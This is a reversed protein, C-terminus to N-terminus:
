SGTEISSLEPRFPLLVRFGRVRIEYRPVWIFRYASRARGASNVFGGGRVVRLGGSPPGWPNRKPRPSYSSYWDAAWEWANGHMDYLGWPNPEKQKGPYLRLGSNERYFAVADLTTPQGHRDCYEAECGARAAYEWEAETPLRGGLWAAYAYATYWSVDVAPLEDPAEPDHEPLLRRLEQNTVEHRLLRFGDLTVRHRPQERSFGVGDPSGMEFSGAPVEVWDEDEPPPPPRAERLPALIEDRLAQAGEEFGAVRVPFYDLAWVISAAMRLDEPAERLLPLAAEAARLIATPRRDELVGGGGKEFMAAVGRSSKKRLEATLQPAEVQFDEALEYIASLAAGADQLALESLLQARLAGQELRVQIALFAVVLVALVAVAAAGMALRTRPDRRLRRRVWSPGFVTAYVKNRPRLRERPPGSVLGVLRLKTQEEAADDRLPGRGRLIRQYVPLWRYAAPDERVQRRVEVLTSDKEGAEHVLSTRVLGDVAEAGGVEARAADRCLKQTLRPHGSTWELVRELVGQPDELGDLGPLLARAAAADLDSLEVAEGVNFPTRRSDKVLDSPAAVGILVFSLRKLDPEKARANYLGRIATFFDDASFPLNLTFEIEDVFIVVRGALQRVVERLFDTLRKVPTLHSREQWWSLTDFPLALEGALSEVFSVYWQEPTVDQAGISQLDVYATHVGEQALRAQTRLVLSSKGSQRPALVYALRGERCLDLLEADAPRDIYSPATAELSGGTQFFETM